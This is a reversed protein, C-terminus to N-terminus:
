LAPGKEASWFQPLRRLTAFSWQSSRWSSDAWIIGKGLAAWVGACLDLGLGCHLRMGNPV